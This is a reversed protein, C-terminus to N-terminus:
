KYYQVEKITKARLELRFILLFFCLFKNDYRKNIIIVHVQTDFVNKLTVKFQYYLAASDNSCAHM